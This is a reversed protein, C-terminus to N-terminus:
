DDLEESDRDQGLLELAEDKTLVIAEGMQSRSIRLEALLKPDTIVDDDEDGQQINM